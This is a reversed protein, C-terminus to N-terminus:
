KATVNCLSTNCGVTLVLYSTRVLLGSFYRILMAM